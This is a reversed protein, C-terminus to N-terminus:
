NASDEPPFSIQYEVITSGRISELSGDKRFRSVTKDPLSRLVIGIDDTEEQRFAETICSHVRDALVQEAAKISDLAEFEWRGKDPMRQQSTGFFEELTQKFEQHTTVCYRIRWRPYLEEARGSARAHDPDTTMVTITQGSQELPIWRNFEANDRDVLVLAEEPRIRQARYPAYPVGYFQSLSAGIDARKVQFESILVEEIDLGKRRASRSALGLEAASLIAHAVLPDYRSRIVVPPKMRQAFAVALTACLEKVGEEVLPSFPEPFRNNIIQVVGLLEGANADIIPACLNQRTRYGTREDVRRVFNLRPAYSTLEAEDYVDGVNVMKKYLAVYGAISSEAIPLSFDRFSSMGTKVKSQISTKDDSVVYITLRDCGFLTCVDLSLDLMIQDINDTAHIKNTLAQLKKSFSLADSATSDAPMAATETM